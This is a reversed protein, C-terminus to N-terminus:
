RPGAEAPGSENGRLAGDDRILGNLMPLLEDPPRTEVFGLTQSLHEVSSTGVLVTTVGSHMTVFWAAIQRYDFGTATALAHVAARVEPQGPRLMEGQSDSREALLGSAFMGRVIVPLGLAKASPIVATAEPDLVGFPIQISALAGTAIWGM